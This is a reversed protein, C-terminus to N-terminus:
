RRPPSSAWRACRPRAGSRLRRSRAAPCSSTWTPRWARAACWPSPRTAPPGPRPRQRRRGQHRGAGPGLLRRPPPRRLGARRLRGDLAGWWRAIWAWTTWCRPWTTPWTPSPSCARRARVRRLRAPRARHRPRRAGLAPPLRRVDAPRLPLRAAARLARGPRRRRVCPTRGDLITSWATIRDPPTDAFMGRSWRASFHFGPTTGSALPQLGARELASFSTGPASGSSSGSLSRVWSLCGRRRRDLLEQVVELDLPLQRRGRQLGVAPIQGDNARKAAPVPRAARRLRHAGDVDEVVQRVQGLAASDARECARRSIARRWSNLNRLASRIQGLLGVSSMSRGRKPRLSGSKRVTSSTSRQQRRGVARVARPARSPAM